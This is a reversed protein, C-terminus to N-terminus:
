FYAGTYPSGITYMDWPSMDRSPSGAGGSNGGTTNNINNVTDGGKNIVIPASSGGEKRARDEILSLNRENGMQKLNKIKDKLGEMKLDPAPSSNMILSNVDVNDSGIYNPIVTGLESSYIDGTRAQKQKVKKAGIVGQNVALPISTDEGTRIMTDLEPDYTYDKLMGRGIGLDSALYGGFFGGKERELLKREAAEKRERAKKNKIQAETLGAYPGQMIQAGIAYDGALAGGLDLRGEEAARNSEGAIQQGLEGKVSQTAGYSLAAGGLAVGGLVGTTALVSGTKSAASAAATEGVEAAITKAASSKAAGVLKAALDAVITGAGAIAGITEAGVGLQKELEGGMFDNLQGFIWGALSGILAGKILYKAPIFNFALTAAAAAIPVNDETLGYEALTKKLDDGLRSYVLSALATVLGVKGATKLVSPLFRALLGPAAAGLLTNLFGGVDAGSKDKKEEEVPAIRPEARQAVATDRQREGATTSLYELASFMRETFEKNNDIGVQNVTILRNLLSNTKKVETLVANNMVGPKVASVMSAKTQQYAAMESQVTAALGPRETKAMLALFDKESMSIPDAM